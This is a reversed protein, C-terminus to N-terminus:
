DSIARTLSPASYPVVEVVSHASKDDEVGRYLKWVALSIAPPVPLNEPALPVTVDVPFPANKDKSAEPLRWNTQNWSYM